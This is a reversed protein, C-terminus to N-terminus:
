ANRQLAISTKRLATLLGDGQQGDLASSGSTTVAADIQRFVCVALVEQRHLGDLPAGLTEGVAFRRTAFGIRRGTALMARGRSFRTSRIVRTLSGVEDVSNRLLDRGHRTAASARSCTPVALAARCARARPERLGPSDRWHREADPREVMAPAPIDALTARAASQRSLYILTILVGIAALLNAISSIDALTLTM